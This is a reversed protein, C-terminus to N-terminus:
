RLSEIFSNYLDPQELQITTMFEDVMQWAASPDLSRILQLFESGGDPYREMHDRIVYLYALAQISSFAPPSSELEKIVKNLMDWDYM